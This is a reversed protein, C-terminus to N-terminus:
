LSDWDDFDRNKIQEKANQYSEMFEKDEMLELSEVILNFEEKIRVLDVIAQKQIVITGDTKETGVGRMKIAQEM